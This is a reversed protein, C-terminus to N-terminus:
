KGPVTTGLVVTLFSPIGGPLAYSFLTGWAFGPPSSSVAKQGALSAPLPSPHSFGSTGQVLSWSSLLAPCPASSLPSAISSTSIQPSPIPPFPISDQAQGQNHSSSSVPHYNTSPSIIKFSILRQWCHTIRLEDVPWIKKKPEQVLVYILHILKRLRPSSTFSM